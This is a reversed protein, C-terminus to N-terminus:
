VKCGSGGGGDSKTVVGEGHRVLIGLGLNLLDDGMDDSEFSYQHIQCAFM